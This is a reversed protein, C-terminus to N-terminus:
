WVMSANGKKKLTMMVHARKIEKFRFRVVPLALFIQDIVNHMIKVFLIIFLFFRVINYMKKIQCAVWM